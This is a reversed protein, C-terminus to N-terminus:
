ITTEKVASVEYKRPQRRELECGDREGAFGEIGYGFGDSEAPSEVSGSGELFNGDWEMIWDVIAEVGEEDVGGRNNDGIFM